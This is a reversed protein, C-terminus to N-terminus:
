KSYHVNHKSHIVDNIKDLNIISNKLDFGFKSNKKVSNALKVSVHDWGDLYDRDNELVDIKNPKNIFNNIVNNMSGDKILNGIIYRKSGPRDLFAAERFLYVDGYLDVAVSAQPVGLIKLEELSAFNNEFDDGLYGDRLPELAFGYDIFLGKLYEDEKRMKEIIEINNILNKKEVKDMRNGLIRFDERLTLFNIYSRKELNLKKNISSIWQLLKVVDNSRNKLIVFNLGFSTKSNTENKFKLYNFINETVIKHANKKRTVNETQEDDIGYFSIRLSDLNSFDNNKELYKKTLMFANTYLSSNFKQDRLNNFMQTLKPNTLPELGGSIYFRFPDNKPSEKILRQFADMGEDLASRKYVADYNRGCFTCKFMCSIGPYLGVRFPYMYSKGLFNTISGSVLMPIITNLWYKSGSGHKIIIEQFDKINRIIKIFLKLDNKNLNFRNCLNEYEILPSKSLVFVIDIIIKIKKNDLFQENIEKDNKFNHLIKKKFFEILENSKNEILGQKFYTTVDNSM